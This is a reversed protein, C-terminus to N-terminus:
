QQPMLPSEPSRTIPHSVDKLWQSIQQQGNPIMEEVYKGGDRTSPPFSAQGSCDGTGSDVNDREM